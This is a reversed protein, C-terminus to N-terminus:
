SFLQPFREQKLKNDVLIGVMELNLGVSDKIWTTVRLIFSLTLLATSIVALFDVYKSRAENSDAVKQALEKMSADVQM